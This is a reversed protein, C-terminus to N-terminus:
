RERERESEGEGGRWIEEREEGEM